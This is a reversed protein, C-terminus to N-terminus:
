KGCNCPIRYNYSNVKGSEHSSIMNGIMVVGTDETYCLAEVFQNDSDQETAATFEKVLEEKSNCPIYELKV